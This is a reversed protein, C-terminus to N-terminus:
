NECSWLHTNVQDCNRCHHKIISFKDSCCSCSEVPCAAILQQLHDDTNSSHSCSKNPNDSGYSNIGQKRNHETQIDGTIRWLSLSPYLCPSTSLQLSQESDERTRQVDTRLQTLRKSHREDESSFSSVTQVDGASFVITEYPPASPCRFCTCPMQLCYRSNVSELCWLDSDEEHGEEKGEEEWQLQDTSRFNFINSLRIGVTNVTSVQNEEEEEKDSWEEEAEEGTERSSSGEGEQGEEERVQPSWPTASHPTSLPSNPKVQQNNKSRQLAAEVCLRSLGSSPSPSAPSSPYSRWRGGRLLPSCPMSCPLRRGRAGQHPSSPLFFDDRTKLFPRVPLVHSSASTNSTGGGKPRLSIIDYTDPTLSGSDSRPDYDPGPSQTDTAEPVNRHILTSEGTVQEVLFLSRWVPPPASPQPRCVSRTTRLHEEEGQLLERLMGLRTPLSLDPDSGDTGTHSIIGGDLDRTGLVLTDQQQPTSLIETVVPVHHCVESTLPQSLQNKLEKKPKNFWTRIKDM